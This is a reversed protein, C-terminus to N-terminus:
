KPGKRSREVKISVKVKGRPLIRDVMHGVDGNSAEHLNQGDPALVTIEAGEVPKGDAHALHIGFWHLAVKSHPEGSGDYDGILVHLSGAILTGSVPGHM